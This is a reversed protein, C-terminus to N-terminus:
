LPRTKLKVHNSTGTIESILFLIEKSGLVDIKKCASLYRGDLDQFQSASFSIPELISLPYVRQKTIYHIDTIQFKEDNAIYIGNLPKETPNFINYQIAETAGPAITYTEDIEAIDDGDTDLARWYFSNSVEYPDPSINKIDVCIRKPTAIKASETTELFKSSNPSFIDNFKIYPPDGEWSFREPPLIWTDSDFSHVTERYFDVDVPIVTCAGDSASMSAVIALKSSDNMLVLNYDYHFSHIDEPTSFDFTSSTNRVTKFEAKRESANIMEINGSGDSNQHFTVPFGGIMNAVSLYTNNPM